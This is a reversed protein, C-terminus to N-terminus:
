MMFIGWCNQVVVHSTHMSYLYPNCCFFEAVTEFFPM